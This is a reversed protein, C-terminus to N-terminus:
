FQRHKGLLLGNEDVWENYSDITAKNEERWQRWRETKVAAVVGEECARSLNIGYRKADDVLSAALSVNTPRGACTWTKPSPSALIL